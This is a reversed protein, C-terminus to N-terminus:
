IVKKGKIFFIIENLMAEIEERECAYGAFQVKECLQFVNKLMIKDASSISDNAEIENIINQESGLSYEKTLYDSLILSVKIFFTRSDGQYIIPKLGNLQELMQEIKANYFTMKENRPKKKYGKIDRLVIIIITLLACGILAFVILSTPM